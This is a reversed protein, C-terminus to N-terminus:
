HSPPDGELHEANAVPSVVHSAEVAFGPDGAAQAM